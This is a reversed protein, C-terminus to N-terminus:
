SLGFANHILSLKKADIEFITHIIYILYTYWKQTFSFQVKLSASQKFFFCFFKYCFTQINIGMVLVGIARRSVVIINYKHKYDSTYKWFKFFFLFFLIKLTDSESDKLITVNVIILTALHATWILKVKLSSRILNWMSLVHTNHISCKNRLIAVDRVYLVNLNIDGHKILILFM